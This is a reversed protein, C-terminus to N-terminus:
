RGSSRTRAATASPASGTTARGRSRGNRERPSKGNPVTAVPPDPFADALALIIADEYEPMRRPDLRDDLALALEAVSMDRGDDVIHWLGAALMNGLQSFAQRPGATTVVRYMAALSGFKEELLALAHLGYRIHATSGDVLTIPRGQALLQTGETM